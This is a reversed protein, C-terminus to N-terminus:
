QGNPKNLPLLWYVNPSGEPLWGTLGSGHIRVKWWTYTVEDVNACRPGDIVDFTTGPPINAVFNHAPLDRLVTNSPDNPDTQAQYGVELRTPLTDSCVINPEAAISAGLNLQSLPAIWYGNFGEAVWGQVGSGHVEILWWTLCDGEKDIIGVPGDLVDFTDGYDIQGVGGGTDPVSRLNLSRQSASVGQYGVTMRPHLVSSCESNFSSDPSRQSGSALELNLSFSGATMGRTYGFRSAAITYMGTYPLTFSLQSDSGQGSDDDANITAGSATLVRLYADLNGSTAKMSITIVDGETGRFAWFTHYTDGDLYGQVTEGYAIPLPNDQAFTNGISSIMMWVCIVFIFKLKNTYLFM